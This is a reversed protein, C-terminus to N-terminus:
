FIPAGELEEMTITGDALAQEKRLAYYGACSLNFYPSVYFINLIGLTLASLLGWGIFSLQLVFYEFKHGKMMRMSLKLADTASVKPCDGLIYPTMSYAFGKVIGPIVFLLSWLFTFLAMRLTGGLTHGYNSFGDTFVQELSTEEGRWVRLCYMGLGVTLPGSVLLAFIGLGIAGVLQSLLPVLFCVGVLPWYRKSLLQAAYRKVESRNYMM